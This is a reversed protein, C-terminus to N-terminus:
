RRVLWGLTAMAAFGALGWVSGLAFAGPNFDERLLLWGVVQPLALIVGLAPWSVVPAQERDMM